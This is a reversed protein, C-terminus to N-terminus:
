RMFASLLDKASWIAEAVCPRFLSPLLLLSLGVLFWVPVLFQHRSSLVLPGIVATSGLEQATFGFLARLFNFLFSFFAGKSETSFRSQFQHVLFWLFFQAFFRALLVLVSRSSSLCLESRSFACVPHV